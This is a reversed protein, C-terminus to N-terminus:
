QSSVNYYVEDMVESWLKFESLKNKFYPSDTINELVLPNMNMSGQNGWVPLINNAKTLKQIQPISDDAQDDEYFFEGSDMAFLDLSKAFVGLRWIIDWM